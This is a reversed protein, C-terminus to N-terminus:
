RGIGPWAGASPAYGTLEVYGHGAVPRGRRTGGVEVAGEWYKFSVDLEQDAVLPAVDLDLGEGPVRVRWGSPYSAGTRPSRWTGRAEIAFDAAGLARVRGDAAVGSGSATPAQGGDTERIQFLMLDTGDELQLAFWDWGAQDAALASTSWEHDTWALGRVDFRGDPTTIHGTAEQRTYSYYMSANGPQPGKPSFGRDGHLALPKAPRLELDLAVPGDAAVLRTSGGAGARSASWSELWVRPPDAEAGALGAAGRALRESAYFADAEVDTVTFHALFVQGTAWASARGPVEPALARRFFTLQFGFRREGGVARLNGTTYWWETRYAPHAGEDAPFAVPEPGIVRAFGADGASASLAGVVDASVAAPRAPRRLLALAAVAAVALGLVIAWRRTPRAPRPM